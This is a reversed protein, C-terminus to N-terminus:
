SRRQLIKRLMREMCIFNRMGEVTGKHCMKCVETETSVNCQLYKRYGQPTYMRGSYHSFIVRKYM